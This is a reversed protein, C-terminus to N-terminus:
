ILKILEATRFFNKKDKKIKILESKDINNLKGFLLWLPDRHSIILINNRQNNKDIEVLYSWMREQVQNLSEGKEPTKNFDGEKKVPFQSYFDEKKREHWAGLDIDRLKDTFVIKGDLGIGNKIIKATQKTRLFDSSYIKDIKLDEIIKAKEKVQKRGKKSLSVKDTCDRPYIFEKKNKQYKTRGHRLLYYRNKLKKKM